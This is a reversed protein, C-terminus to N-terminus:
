RRTGPEVARRARRLLLGDVAWVALGTLVMGLLATVALAMPRHGQHYGVGPDSPSVQTTILLREQVGAETQVDRTVTEIQGLLRALEARVGDASPGTVQVQLVPRNFNEAWQGGANPLEISYGHDIGQGALAVSGSTPSKEVGKNVIREVLGATSIVGSTPSSITNPTHPTVPALFVVNTQTAYVGPTQHVLLLVGVTLVLGALVVYWRRASAVLLDWVAM